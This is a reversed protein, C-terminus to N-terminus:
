EAKLRLIEKATRKRFYPMHTQFFSLPLGRSHFDAYKIMFMGCDSGNEQQPLDEVLEMEWSSVDLDNGTKDKAEDTIYRALVDLVHADDGGLSDLYQFKKEKMDVIALCWHIEKHIPVFIKDCDILSYGIKRPTTWRRVAKYEYKTNPNYLKKYFFTNFFHCKLFKDPERKEREKLLELYLNIVEDNLWGGPLLCQLIERTIEINSNEHMVLVERRNWGKLALSVDAEEDDNLPAFADELAQQILSKKEVEAEKEKNKFLEKSTFKLAAFKTNVLELELDLRKLTFDRKHANGYLEYWPQSNGAKVERGDGPKVEREHGPRAERGREVDVHVAITSSSSPSIQLVRQRTFLGNARNDNRQADDFQKQLLALRRKLAELAKSNSSEEHCRNFQDELKSWVRSEDELHQVESVSEGLQKPVSFMRSHQQPRQPGQVARTLPSPPPFSELTRIVTVPSIQRQHSTLNTASTSPESRPLLLSHHSRASPPSGLRQKKKQSWSIQNPISLPTTSRKYRRRDETELRQSFLRSRSKSGNNSSSYSSLPPSKTSTRLQDTLAGM